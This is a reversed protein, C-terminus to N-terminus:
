TLDRTFYIAVEGPLMGPLNPRYLTEDLGCLRFGMRRYFAIAPYNINQTELWLCRTSPEHRAREDLAEILMRGVGQRRVAPTVTLHEIEARGSWSDFSLEGVGVIEDDVTAVMLRDSLDPAPDLYKKHLPIDLGVEELWFGLEGRRVNYVWDTSYSRDIKGIGALDAPTSATRVAIGSRGMEGPEWVAPGGPHATRGHGCILTM